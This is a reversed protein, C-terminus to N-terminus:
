HSPPPPPPPDDPPPPPPDSPPPPTSGGTSPAVTKLKLWPSKGLINGGGPAVTIRWYSRGVVKSTASISFRGQGNSYGTRITRWTGGAYRQLSIRGKRGPLVRGAVTFAHGKTVTTKVLHAAVYSRVLVKLVRSTSAENATTGAYTMRWATSKLPRATFSYNGASGLTHNSTSWTKASLKRSQLKIPGAIASGGVARRLQATLAIRKGAVITLTAPAKTGHAIQSRTRFGEFDYTRTAITTETHLADLYFPNGDCGYVFGVWAGTGDGGHAAVFSAITANGADQDATGDTFHRWQFTRTAANM